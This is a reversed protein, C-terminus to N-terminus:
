SEPLAPHGHTARSKRPRPALRRNAISAAPFHDTPLSSVQRLPHPSGITCKRFARLHESGLYAHDRDLTPRYTLGALSEPACPAPKEVLSRALWLWRFTRAKTRGYPAERSAIVTFRFIPRFPFRTTICIITARPRDTGSVTPTMWPSSTLVWRVVIPTGASFARFTRMQLVRRHVALGETSNCPILTSRSLQSPQNGARRPLRHRKFPGPQTAPFAHPTARAAPRGTIPSSRGHGGLSM